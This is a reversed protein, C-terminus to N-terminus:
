NPPAINPNLDLPTKGQSNKLTLSAGNEILVQAVEFHDKDAAYHLATWRGRNTKNIGAGASILVQVVEPHGQSAAWLLPTRGNTDTADVAAKHKLLWEVMAVQGASAAYQLPTGHFTRQRVDVDAEQAILEQAFEVNGSSAARHLQSFGKEDFHGVPQSTELKPQSKGSHEWGQRLKDRIRRIPADSGTRRIIALGDRDAGRIPAKSNQESPDRMTVEALGFSTAVWLRGKAWVGDFCEYTNTEAYRFGDQPGYRTLKGTALDLRFLGSDGFRRWPTGGIWLQGDHEVFFQPHYTGAPYNKLLLTAPYSKNNAESADLLTAIQKQRYPALWIGSRGSEVVLSAKGPLKQWKDTRLDLRWLQSNMGKVVLQRSNIAMSDPATQPVNKGRYVHVRNSPSKANPSNASPDVRVVGGSIVRRWTNISGISAYAVSGVAEVAVISNTPLGDDLTWQRWQGDALSLRWLGQHDTGVWLYGSTLALCSVYGDPGGLSNWKGTALDLAQLSRIPIARPGGVRGNQFGGGCFLQGGFSALVRCFIPKGDVGELYRVQIDRDHSLPMGGLADIGGVFDTSGGHYYGHPTEAYHLYTELAERKRGVREYCKALLFGYEGYDFDYGWEPRTHDKPQFGELIKLATETDGHGLRHRALWLIEHTWGRSNTEESGKGDAENITEAYEQASLKNLLYLQQSSCMRRWRNDSERWQTLLKLSKNKLSLSVQKGRVLRYAISTASSAMLGPNESQESIRVVTDLLEQWRSEERRHKCITMLTKMLRTWRTNRGEKSMAVLMELRRQYGLEVFKPDLSGRRLSSYVSLTHSFYMDALLYGAEERLQADTSENRIRRLLQECREPQWVGDVHFSLCYALPYAATLREPDVFLISELRDITKKLLYVGLPTSPEVDVHVGSPRQVGPIEFGFTGTDDTTERDFRFVDRLALKYLRDIEKGGADQPPPLKVDGTGIMQSIQEVIETVKEALQQQKCSGEIKRVVQRSEVDILETVIVVLNGESTSREDIEGRLVYAAEREPEGELGQGKNTLGARVLELEELLQQMSSRQVVRCTKQQMLASVLLDRLGRELPRLRDFREVSEFPLVAITATQSTPGQVVDALYNAIEIATEEIQPASIPVATAGRVVATAAETVHVLLSQQGSDDAALLKATLILDAKALKGLQLQPNADRSLNLVLEHMALDLQQREVVQLSAHRSTEVELLALLNAVLKKEAPTAQAHVTTTLAVTTEAHAFTPSLLLLAIILHRRSPLM